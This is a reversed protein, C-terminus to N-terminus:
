STLRRALSKKCVLAEKSPFVARVSKQTRVQQFLRRTEEYQSFHTPEACAFGSAYSLGHLRHSMITPAIDKDRLSVGPLHCNELKGGM